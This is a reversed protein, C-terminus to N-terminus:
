GNSGNLEGFIDRLIRKRYDFIHQIKKRIFLRNAIRGVWALPPQYTVRDTMLVGGDVAFLRHEHHWMRYPGIRQEDVFYTKGNVQTIETVWQMRIGALPKVSYAIIMGAYIKEEANDSTIRFDMDPPTIRGLNAPSSIFKWVADIDSHLIQETYYQFHPM